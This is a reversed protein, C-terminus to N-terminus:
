EKVVEFSFAGQFRFPFEHKGDQGVGDLAVALVGARTVANPHPKKLFSLLPQEVVVLTSRKGKNVNARRELQLRAIDPPTNGRPFPMADCLSPRRLLLRPSQREPM